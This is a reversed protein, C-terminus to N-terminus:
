PSKVMGRDKLEKTLFHNWECPSQKLDYLSARIRWVGDPHEKNVFGDPQRM